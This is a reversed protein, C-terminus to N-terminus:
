ELEITGPPKTTLDIMVRTIGKVENTIRSTIKELIDWEVRVIDATMANISEVIRIVITYGYCRADGKLGVTKSSLLGAYSQWINKYCKSKKLEEQLIYDAKRVIKIKKYTIKGVIRIALGPGPFPQRNIVIDPINLSKGLKRVENKYLDRLPEVIRFSLGQPIILNHHSKIKKRSEVVDPYITGQVLWKVDPYYRKIINSFVEMFTLGIIKRKKEPKKVGKLKDIFVNTPFYHFNKFGLTIQFLERVETSEQERLLQHDIFVCILNDKIVRHCLMAAVTSDVGGSVAIIVKDNGVTNKIKKTISNITKDVIWDKKCNCIRLFNDLIFMGNLTHKVEPHFQIGTFYDNFIVAAAKCSRTEAIVRASTPLKIVEDRHSMWVQETKELRDFIPNNELIKLQCKGYEPRKSETIIGGFLKALLQHGYCIGLIRIKKKKCYKIVKNSVLFAEDNVSQPGGSFIIGKPKKQKIVFLIDQPDILESYVGLERINKCILHAYQGGFNVVVIM